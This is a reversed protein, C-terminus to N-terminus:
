ALGLDALWVDILTSLRTQGFDAYRYRARVMPQRVKIQAALDIPTAVVVVDASSADITTQLAALQGESYGMAPLVPGIHPYAEFVAKIDPDANTRPDVVTVDPLASVVSYGAGWPMGGHTITPGDEVILVRKGKVSDPDDLVVPSAAQVISRGPKLAAIRRELATVQTMDAADSKAIIVIDAMRLTTEGPHHTTLQTPRLADVLTILLDPKIFSFDNNGGDWLIIDAETEAKAVIAAYDVGAFIVSGNAVYPEYEEREEITCDAEDLDARTAFRQVTQRSLDGYPMPHRIASVRLGKEALYRSLYHATQSKGCGTRVACIAIVPIKARLETQRPGALHFSAGANMICSAAHMVQENAVDSYAFDVQDINERRCLAELENEDIIPIGDPYHAGALEPPYSRGSIGPIQTSTFALVRTSPDSRYLMNFNHFDRGAAGMIVIRRKCSENNM